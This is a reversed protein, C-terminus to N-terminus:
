PLSIAPGEQNTRWGLVPDKLLDLDGPGPLDRVIDQDIDHFRPLYNDPDPTMLLWDKGDEKPMLTAEPVTGGWIKRAKKREYLAIWEADYQRTQLQHIASFYAEKIEEETHEKRRGDFRERKALDISTREKPKHCGGVAVSAFETAVEEIDTWTGGAATLIHIHGSNPPTEIEIWAFPSKWGRDYFGYRNVRALSGIPVGIDGASM